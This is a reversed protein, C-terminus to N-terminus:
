KVAHKKQHREMRVGSKVRHSCVLCELYCLAQHRKLYYSDIFGSSCVKCSGSGKNHQKQHSVLKNTSVFIEHCSVCMKAVQSKELVPMSGAKLQYSSKALSGSSYIVNLNFSRNSVIMISADIITEKVRHSVQEKLLKAESDTNVIFLFTKSSEEVTVLYLKGLIHKWTKVM